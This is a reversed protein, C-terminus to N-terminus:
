WWREFRAQLLDPQQLYRSYQSRIPYFYAPTVGYMPTVETVAFCTQRPGTFRAVHVYKTEFLLVARHKRCCCKSVAVIQNTALCTQNMPPLVRQM